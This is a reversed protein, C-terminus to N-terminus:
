GRMTDREGGLWGIALSHCLAADVERLKEESLSGLRKGLRAQAITQLQECKIISDQPLGSGTRSLAVHFPYARRTRRGSIAAVVPIRFDCRSRVDDPRERM